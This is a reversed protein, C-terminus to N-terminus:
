AASDPSTMRLGLTQVAEVAKADSLKAYGRTTQVNAHGLLSATVLLDSVAYIDSGFRHRLQHMTERVGISHLFRNGYISVVAATPPGSQGDRRSFVHGRSPLPYGRLEDLLDPCLFVIREKNGKGRVRLHPPDATDLIADRTLSAIECCRLGALAALMLWLRMEGTAARIARDVEESPAPRPVSQPVRPRPIRATPAADILDTDCAWQYFAHVRSLKVHRSGPSPCTETLSVAWRLLNDPTADLLPTGALFRRLLNLEARSYETYTESLGRMRQHSLYDDLATKDDM